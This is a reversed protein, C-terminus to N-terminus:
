KTPSEPQGSQPNSADTSDADSTAALDNGMYRKHWRKVEDLAEYVDDFQHLRRPGFLYSYIELSAEPEDNRYDDAEFWNPYSLVVGIYGENSKYHRYEDPDNEWKYHMEYMLQRIQKLAENFPLTKASDSQKATDSTSIRGTSGNM